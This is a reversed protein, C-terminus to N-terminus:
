MQALGSVRANQEDKNHWHTFMGSCVRVYILAMVCSALGAISVIVIHTVPDSLVIITNWTDNLSSLMLENLTSQNLHPYQIHHHAPKYSKEASPKLASQSKQLFDAVLQARM